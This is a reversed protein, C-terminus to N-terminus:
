QWLDEKALLSKLKEKAEPGAYPADKPAAKKDNFTYVAIYEKGNGEIHAVFWGLRRDMNEGMQGSGTKGNLVFGNKSTELYTIKKTIDIAKQSVPLKGSWLKKLFDVQEYASIKITSEARNKMTLWSTTLSGSSDKNGYEFKNMYSQLKKEGMIKTLEQSYWVVSNQMWTKASHDQNWVSLMRRRGDWLFSTNEDRLIGADFSMVALPVKFTSCPSFREECRAGGVSKEYQGTKVNYLLFCDEVKSPLKVASCGAIIGLSLLSILKKM